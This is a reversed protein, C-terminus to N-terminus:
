TKRFYRQVGATLWFDQFISPKKAPIAGLTGRFTKSLSVGPNM